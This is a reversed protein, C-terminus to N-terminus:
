RGSLAPYLGGLVIGYVLHGVLPKVAIYPVPFTSGPPFGVANLWIPWVFWINVVWLLLGYGAGVVIGTTWVREAGSLPEWRVIAAYVLAFLISHVLHAVWGTAIGPVTYLAGVAQMAGVVYQILFGFAVGAIIGAIGADVWGISTSTGTASASDTAM